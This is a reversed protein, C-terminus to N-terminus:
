GETLAISAFCTLIARPTCIFSRVNEKAEIDAGSKLLLGTAEVRGFAAAWLLATYGDNTHHNISAGAELLLSIVREHDSGESGEGAAYMLATYGFQDVADVRAGADLLSRVVEVFGGKAALHLPTQDSLFAFSLHFVTLRFSLM